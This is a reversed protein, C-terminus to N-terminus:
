YGRKKLEQSINKKIDEWEKQANSSGHVKIRLDRWEERLQYRANEKELEKIRKQAQALKKELSTVDQSNGPKPGPVKDQLSKFAADQIRAEWQYFTERTINYKECVHSINRDSKRGELVIQYKQEPTYKKM